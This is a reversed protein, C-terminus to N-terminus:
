KTDIKYIWAKSKGQMYLKLEDFNEVDLFNDDMKSFDFPIYDERFVKSSGYNVYPDAKDLILLEEPTKYTLRFTVESPNNFILTDRYIIKAIKLCKKILEEESLTHTDEDSLLIDIELANFINHKKNLLEKYDMKYYKDNFDHIRHIHVVNELSILEKTKKMYYREINGRFKLYGYSDAMKLESDKLTYYPSRFIINPDEVFYGEDISEEMWSSQVSGGLGFVYYEGKRKIKYTMGYKERFYEQHEKYTEKDFITTRIPLILIYQHGKYLGFWILISFIFSLIFHLFDLRFCFKTIFAYLLIIFIFVPMGLTFASYLAYYGLSKYAFLMIYSFFLFLVGTTKLLLKLNILNNERPGFSDNFSIFRKRNIEETEEYKFDNVYIQYKFVEYLFLLFINEITKYFLSGEFGLFFQVFNIIGVLYIIYQFTILLYFKDLSFLLMKKISDFTINKSFVFYCPFFSTICDIFFIYFWITGGRSIDKELFPPLGLLALRIGTLLSIMLNKKSPLKSFYLYLIFTLLPLFRYFFILSYGKSFMPVIGKLYSFYISLFVIGILITWHIPNISHFINKM